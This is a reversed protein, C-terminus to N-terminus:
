PNHRPRQKTPLFTKAVSLKHDNELANEDMLQDPIKLFSVLVFGDQLVNSGPIFEHREM